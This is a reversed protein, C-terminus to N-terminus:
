ESEIATTEEQEKNDEEEIEEDDDEVTTDEEKNLKVLFMASVISVCLGIMSTIKDLASYVVLMGGIACLAIFVVRKKNM